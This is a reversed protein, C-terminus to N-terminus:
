GPEEQLKILKYLTGILFHSLSFTPSFKGKKERPEPVIMFIFIFFPSISFNQITFLYFEKVVVSVNLM